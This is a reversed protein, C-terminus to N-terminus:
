WTTRPGEYGNPYTPPPGIKQLGSLRARMIEYPVVQPSTAAAHVAGSRALAEVEHWDPVWRAAIYDTLFIAIDQDDPRVLYQQPGLSPIVVGPQPVPNPATPPPLTSPVLTPPNPPFGYISIAKDVIGGETSTLQEGALYKTLASDVQISGFGNEIMGKVVKARWQDNTGLQEAGTGPTVVGINPYSTVAGGPGSAQYGGFGGPDAGAAPDAAADATGTDKKGGGLIGGGKLKKSLVFGGIGAAAWGWVPLPGIDRTLWDPLDPADM